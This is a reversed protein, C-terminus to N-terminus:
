AKTPLTLHTYSVAISAHLRSTMSDATVIESDGERGIRLPFDEFDLIRSDGDPDTIQLKLM